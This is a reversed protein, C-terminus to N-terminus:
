VLFYCLVFALVGQLLKVGLFPLFRVKANALFAYQQCLICAGGFTAGFAVLPLAFPSKVNALEAAGHTMEMCLEPLTKAVSAGFLPALLKEPPAFLKLDAAMLSATGFLAIFGGVCLISLVSETMSEYLLNGRKPQPTCAKAAPTPLFRFLIGTLLVATLNCLVLILGYRVSGFMGSGVTGILFLPGCTSCIYSAKQAEGASLNGQRVQDSLLKAGVPYGCFLSVCLVAASTGSLKFLFRAIPALLRAFKDMAGTKNLIATCFLFPFICPLVSTAWLSIGRLTAAVYRKPSLFLLLIYALVAIIALVPLIRIRIRKHIRNKIRHKM